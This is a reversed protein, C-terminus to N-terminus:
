TARVTFFLSNDASTHSTLTRAKLTEKMRSEPEKPEKVMKLRKLHVQKEPPAEKKKKLFSEKEKESANKQLSNERRAMAGQRMEALKEVRQEMVEFHEEPMGEKRGRKRIEFLKIRSRRFDLLLLQM